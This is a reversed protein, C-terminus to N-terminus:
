VKEMLRGTLKINRFGFREYLSHADKTALMWKKIRIFREDNLIEKLLIISLGNGRYDEVIFVDMLYAITVLDSLVRAFGVQKNGIYIGYCFSNDISRKVENFTRGKAWYSNTIQQHILELDLRAKDDSIIYEEM